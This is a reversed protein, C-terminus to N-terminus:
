GSMYLAKLDLENFKALLVDRKGAKGSVKTYFRVTTSVEELTERELATM